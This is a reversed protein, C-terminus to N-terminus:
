LTDPGCSFSCICFLYLMRTHPPPAANTQFCFFCSQYYFPPFYSLSFLPFFLAFFPLLFLLPSNPCSFLLVTYSSFSFLFTSSFFFLTLPSPSSSYQPFSFCHLLLLLPSINLFLLVIYSFFSFLFISSFFFFLLLDFCNYIYFM